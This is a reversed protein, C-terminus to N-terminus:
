RNRATQGELRALEGRLKENDTKLANVQEDLAATLRENEAKLEKVAEVLVATLKEYSISKYGDKDTKVIEPIVKETEQAVLGIQKDRTFHKEPFEDSRWNYSVGQLMAVKDLSDTLPAVNKKWRVDSACCTGGTSSINGGSTISGAATLDGSTDLTTMPSGPTGGITISGATYLDGSADLTTIPSVGQTTSGYYFAYTSTEGLNLPEVYLGYQNYITGTNYGTPNGNEIYLGYANQIVGFNHAYVSSYLGYAGTPGSAATIQANTGDAYVTSQLGYAQAVTATSPQVPTKVYVTTTAGYANGVTTTSNKASSIQAANVLGTMNAAGANQNNPPTIEALQYTGTLSQATGSGHHNVISNFGNLFTNGSLAANNTVTANLGNLTTTNTLNASNTVTCLAGNVTNVTSSANTVYEQFGSATLGGYNGSGAIDLYGADGALSASSVNGSGSLTTSIYQSLATGGPFSSGGSVASPDYASNLTLSNPADSVEGVQLSGYVVVNGQAFAPSAGLVIVLLLIATKM